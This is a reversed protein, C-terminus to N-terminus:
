AKSGRVGTVFAHVNKTRRNDQPVYSDHLKRRREEELHLNSNTFGQHRAKTIEEQTIKRDSM